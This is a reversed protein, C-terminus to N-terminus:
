GSTVRLAGLTYRGDTARGAMALNIPRGTRTDFIGVALTYQGAAAGVPVTIAGTVPNEPASGPLTSAPMWSSVDTPLTWERVIRGDAARLALRAQFRQGMRAYAPAYGRNTWTLNYRLPTGAVVASPYTARDLAFRYGVSRLVDSLVGVDRGGTLNDHVVSGHTLRLVADARDMFATDSTSGACFEYMVPAKQWVTQALSNLPDSTTMRGLCDHRLGVDARRAAVYRSSQMIGAAPMILQTTRFGPYSYSVTAVSGDPNRCSGTASGGIFMDALRRRAQGDLTTPRMHDSDWATQDQWSWENFDGYGSIDIFAVSPNADYRARLAEVMAAWERQYVCSSYDPEGGVLKAGRDYVWQPILNGGWYPGRRTYLRFSFQKGTARATALDADIASFDFVGPAPNATAWSYSSRKYSVTEPLIPADPTVAEQWGIGPNPLYASTASPTVTVPAAVPTSGNVPAATYGIQLQATWGAGREVSGVGVYSNRASGNDALQLHIAQGAAWGSRSVIEQLVPQLNGVTIRAGYAPGGLASTSYSRSVAANTLPMGTVQAARTPTAANDVAAGAVRMRVAGSGWTTRLVLNASVVKAGRPVSLGSFRLLASHRAGWANGIVLKKDSINLTRTGSLTGDDGGRAVTVVVSTAATQASAPAVSPGASVLSVASLLMVLGLTVPSASLRPM